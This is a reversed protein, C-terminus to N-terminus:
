RQTRVAGRPAGEAVSDTASGAPRLASWVDAVPEFGLGEYLTLAVGSPDTALLIRETPRAQQQHALAAALLTRAIGRRRHAPHVVVDEVVAIGDLDRLVVLSAVPMGHRSALWVDARGLAALERIRRRNWAAGEEDWTRWAPVDEGQAYRELVAAAHWRRETVLDARLEADTAGGTRDVTPDATAEVTPLALRRVELAMGPVEVARRLELVRERTVLCGDREFAARLDADPMVDVPLELRVQVHAVGVPVMLRAVRELLEPVGAAEPPALLDVVNGDLHDPRSPTRVVVDTGLHIVLASPSVGVRLSRLALGDDRRTVDAARESV